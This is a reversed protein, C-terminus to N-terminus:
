KEEWDRKLKEARAPTANTAVPRSMGDYWGKPMRMGPRWVSLTDSEIAESAPIVDVHYIPEDSSKGTADRVGYVISTNGLHRAIDAGSLICGHPGLKAVVPRLLQAAALYSTDKIVANSSVYAVTCLLVLQAAPVGALIASTWKWDVKLVQAQLPPFGDVPVRPGYYDYAAIAALSFLRILAQIDEPRYNAAPVGGLNADLDGRISIESHCLDYNCQYYLKTDSESEQGMGLAGAFLRAQADPIDYSENYRLYRPVPPVAVHLVTSNCDFLNRMVGDQQFALVRISRPGYDPEKPYTAWTLPTVNPPASWPITEDKGTSNIRFTLRGSSFDSVVHKQCVARAGVTRSSMIIVNESTFAVRPGVDALRVQVVSDDEESVYFSYRDEDNKSDTGPRLTIWGIQGFFNALTVGPLNHDVLFNFVKTAERPDDTPLQVDSWDTVNLQGPAIFDAFSIELESHTNSWPVLGIAAVVVQLGLNLILSIMCYWQVRSPSFRGKVRGTWLLQMTSLLSECQMVQDFERLAFYRTSLLQWRLSRAFGKFASSQAMGLLMSLGINFTNFINADRQSLYPARSYAYCLWFLALCLITTLFLQWLGSFFVRWCQPGRRFHRLTSTLHAEHTESDAPKHEWPEPISLRSTITSLSM